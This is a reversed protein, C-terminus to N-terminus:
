DSGLLPLSRDLSYVRTWTVKSTCLDQCESGYQPDKKYFLSTDDDKTDAVAFEYVKNRLEAPLRLFPFSIETM